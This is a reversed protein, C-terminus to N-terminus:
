GAKKPEQSQKKEDCIWVEKSEEMKKPDDDVIRMAPKKKKPLVARIAGYAMGAAAVALGIPALTVWFLTTGIIGNEEVNPTTTTWGM